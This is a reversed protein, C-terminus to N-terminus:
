VQGARGSLGRARIITYNGRRNYRLAACGWIIGAYKAYVKRARRRKASPTHRRAAGNDRNDIGNGIRYLVRAIHPLIRCTAFGAGNDRNDIGNGIRYLVRAIRACGDL